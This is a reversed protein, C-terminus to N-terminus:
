KKMIFIGSGIMHGDAFVHVQYTGKSLFENIPVYMTVRQEEGTYEIIKAASYELTQDEYSFSGNPAAVDNTPKLIRLYVTRQGTPATVNKSITFTAVFRKVDKVKKARKNRKNQPEVSVNTADLQSAIEVKETLNQKETTLNDIRSTAETYQSKIQLNEDALAQNVRYLSDIERIYSRLVARVTALEKKLRIIEAADTAKVRRLEELLEQNRAQEESLREMLSDDKISKKLEDYQLAFQAYENEMEKKDLEALQQLKEKDKREEELRLYFITALLAILVIATIIVTLLLNKRKKPNSSLIPTETQQRSTNNPLEQEQM